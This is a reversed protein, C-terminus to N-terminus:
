EESYLVKTTTTNNSYQGPENSHKQWHEVHNYRPRCAICPQLTSICQAINSSNSTYEWSLWISLPPTPASLTAALFVLDVSMSNRRHISVGCPWWPGAIACGFGVCAVNHDVHAIIKFELPASPVSTNRVNWFCQFQICNQLLGQSNCVFVRSCNKYPGLSQTGYVTVIGYDGHTGTNHPRNVKNIVVNTNLVGDPIKM